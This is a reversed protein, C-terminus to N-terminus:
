KSSFSNCVISKYFPFKKAAFEKEALSFAEEHKTEELLTLIKIFFFTLLIRM